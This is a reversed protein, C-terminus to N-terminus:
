KILTTTVMGLMVSVHSFYSSDEAAKVACIPTRQQYLDTCTLTQQESNHQQCKITKGDQSSPAILKTVWLSPLIESICLGWLM